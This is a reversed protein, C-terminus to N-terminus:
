RTDGRMRAVEKRAGAGAGYMEASRREELKALETACENVIEMVAREIRQQKALCSATIGDAIAAAYRRVMLRRQM